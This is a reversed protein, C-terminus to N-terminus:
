DEEIVSLEYELWEFDAEQNGDADECLEYDTDQFSVYNGDPCSVLKKGVQLADPIQGGHRIYYGLKDNAIKKIVWDEFGNPSVGDGGGSINIVYENDKKHAGYGWVWESDEKEYKSLEDYTRTEVNYSLNRETPDSYIEDFIEKILQQNNSYLNLYECEADPDPSGWRDIQEDRWTHYQTELYAKEVDKKGQEKLEENEKQAKELHVNLEDNTKKLKKIEQELPILERVVGDSVFDIEERLEKNWKVLESPLAKLKKLCQLIEHPEHACIKPLEPNERWLDDAYGYVKCMEDADRKFWILQGELEEIEEELYIVYKVINGDCDDPAAWEDFGKTKNMLDDVLKKCSIADKMLENLEEVMEVLQKKTNKM